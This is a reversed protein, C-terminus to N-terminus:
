GPYGVEIRGDVIRVPYTKIDVTAPESLVKGTRINFCAEHLPCEVIDGDVFGDALSAYAHSCINDTAYIEGDVNFLAIEHGDVVVRKPIDPTVESMDAVSYFNVTSMTLVGSM